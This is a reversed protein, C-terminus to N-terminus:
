GADFIVEPIATDLLKEKPIGETKNYEININFKPRFDGDGDAYFGVICSHGSNGCSEMYKLFSCFDDVWRENMTIEINFTKEMNMKIPLRLPVRVWVCLAVPELGADDEM